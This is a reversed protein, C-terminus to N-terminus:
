LGTKVRTWIRTRSRVQKAGQSRDAFLKAVVEAPPYLGPDSRIEANVLSDAASNANAFLVTNTVDAIEEPKLMHDIFRYAADPHPADAPIAMLDIWLMTGEKPIMYGIDIGSGNEAARTRALGADGSYVLSLCVDGAALDTSPRQNHYYRVHPAIARLVEEAKELDAADDSYPDIGLYNLTISIVELPSDLLTVGCDALKAANEPKFLVDFSDIEDTGLRQKIAAKNYALGVTGWTYPVGLARGGPVKDLAALISPNLNGYNKLKSPDIAALAGAQFEREANSAAPFVVDYGSKGTLLKTELVENSDYLDVTVATGTQSQYRSITEAGFYDAWTYINLQDAALAASSLFAAALGIGLTQLKM